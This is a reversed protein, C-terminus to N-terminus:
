DSPMSEGEVVPDPKIFTQSGDENIEAKIVEDEDDRAPAVAAGKKGRASKPTATRARKGSGPTGGAKPARRKPTKSGSKGEGGDAEEDEDESPLGKRKREEKDFTMIKKKLAGWANAVSRPNKMGM